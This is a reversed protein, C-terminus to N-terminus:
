ITIGKKSFSVRLHANDALKYNHLEILANIAQEVDGLQVLAMKHDRQFFKFEVINFKKDEFAKRLFDESINPPINSLHLTNSPPYINMYNKSGPKKFRHLTSNTYDRTLGADPQGDKPMQVNSHKSATVRIVRDQWRMKDLHQIAHQAQQPEAFQILANDKKNFLIKVRQVDGYVGFLTFLADPTIKQENLNSVLVVPTIGLINIPSFPMGAVASSAGSLNNQATLASNNALSSGLQGLFPALSQSVTLGEGTLAQQAFALQNGSQLFSFNNPVMLSSANLQNQGSQQAAAASILSLQQELTMEGSPLTPNTYDRSKDNNYKVNLTSLKSYDIRLTCCNNYVNQGDLAQRAQQAANAESLQVLAQFTNNKNFTIIRLVKGYRSFISHLVDLTVPYIMSDIIVRLVANPQQQTSIDLQSATSSTDRERTSGNGLQAQGSGPTSSNSTAAASNSANQGLILLNSSLMTDGFISGNKTASKRETKLGQHTSYQCFITRGRIAMPCAQAVNVITQAGVDEEYEVFAQNKGKLMLYNVLKGFPMCFHVLELETMDSPINRLHIVRSHPPNTALQNENTGGNIVNGNNTNSINNCNQAAAVLNHQHFFDSASTSPITTSNNNISFNSAAVAAAAAARIGAATAQQAAVVAATASTQPYCSTNLVPVLTTDLKAKKPESDSGMSLDQRPNFASAVLLATGNSAAIPGGASRKIGFRRIVDYFEAASTVGTHSTGLIATMKTETFFV